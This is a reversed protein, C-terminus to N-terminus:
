YGELPNVSVFLSDHGKECIHRDVAIKAIKSDNPYAVGELADLVLKLANDCDIKPRRHFEVFVEVEGEHFDGKYSYGVLEQFAKCAATKYMRNNGIRYAANHSPIKVDIDVTGSMRPILMYAIDFV